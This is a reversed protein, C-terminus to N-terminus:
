PALPINFRQPTAVPSRVPQLGAGAGAAPDTRFSPPAGADKLVREPRPRGEPRGGLGRRAEEPPKQAGEAVGEADWRGARLTVGLVPPPPVGGMRTIATGPSRFVNGRSLNPRSALTRARDNGKTLFTNLALGCNERRVRDWWRERGFEGRSADRWPPGGSRPM